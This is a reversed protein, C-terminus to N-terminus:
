WHLKFGMGVADLGNATVTLDGSLEIVASLAVKAEFYSMGWGFISSSGEEFYTNILMRNVGGCCGGTVIEISLLEWYDPYYAHGADVAEEIEEIVSGYEPTTIAYHSLDLVSLEKVTVGNWSWVLGLGYLEIGSVTADPATLVAAYVDLCTTKALRLKPELELSKTLLEFTLDLDVVLWALGTEIGLFEFTVFDFGAQTLYLTTSIDQVCGFSWGSVALKEGTFGQGCSAGGALPPVLPNTVYTKYLGTAAHVITLGDFDEDKVRAGFESTSTIDIAGISGGFRFAFGAAPGGFVADSLKAFYFGLDVGALSTTTIVQAYIFDVTSPGFLLDTQIDWGGLRGSMGFEQWVFGGILCLESESTGILSGFSYDLHLVSDMAEFLPGSPDIVIESLWTGSFSDSALVSLCVIMVAGLTLVLARQAM